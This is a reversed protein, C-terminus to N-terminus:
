HCMLKALKQQVQAARREGHGILIDMMRILREILMGHQPTLLAESLAREVIDVTMSANSSARWFNKDDKRSESVDLLWEFAPEPVLSFGAKNLFVLLVGYYAPSDAFTKVWRDIHPMMRELSPWPAEFLPMRHPSFLAICVSAGYRMGVSNDNRSGAARSHEFMLNSLMMWQELTEQDVLESQSFRYKAFGYLIKDLLDAERGMCVTSIPKIILEEVQSTTLQRSFLGCWDMFQSQWEYAPGSGGYGRRDGWPPTCDMLTWAMLEHFMKLVSEQRLDDGLLYEIPQFFLSRAVIDFCFTQDALRFQGCEPDPPTISPDLVYKEPISPLRSYTTARFDALVEQWLKKMWLNRKQFRESDNNWYIYDRPIVSMKIALVLVQWCLLYDQEWCGSLHKYLSKVVGDLPHCAMAILCEREDQTALNRKALSVLGQIGFPIPHLSLESYKFLQDEESLPMNSADWAIGRAWELKDSSLNEEFMLLTAAVGAIAVQMNSIKFETSRGEKFVDGSDLRRAEEYAKDFSYRDDVGGKQLSETAWMGLGIYENLESHDKHVEVYDDMLEGPPVYYIYVGSKDKLKESQYNEPSAMAQMQCIHGNIEDILKPNSRQEEFEFPLDGTVVKEVREVLLERYRSDEHFLYRPILHRIELQRHPLQNRDAVQKKGHGFGILNSPSNDGVLREIDWRWIYLNTVLPLAADFSKEPYKQAISACAGLVGVCNNNELVLKFLEEVDRGEEVQSEMWFELAMLGSQVAYPGVGNGRFWTYQNAHGWFERAGWPFDIKVPLPTGSRERKYRDRWCGVARASLANLLRLGEATNHQLLSLFPPNLHSANFFHRDESIGLNNRISSSFEDRREEQIMVEILSDVLQEPIGEVLHNANKILFETGSHHKSSSINRVYQAVKSTCENVCAFVIRRLRNQLEEGGHYGELELSKYRMQVPDDAKWSRGIELVGLWDLAWGVVSESLWDPILGYSNPLVMLFRSTEDVLRPPIHPIVKNLWTLFPRWTQLQPYAFLYALEKQTSDEFESDFDPHLWKENPIVEITRLAVLVDEFYQADGELLMEQIRYLSPLAQSSKLPGVLVSRQWRPDLEKEGVLSLLKKWDGITEGKELKWQGLLQVADTLWVPQRNSLLTSPLSNGKINLVQCLTWDELIDHTFEVVGSVKDERLIDDSVLSGLAKSDSADFHTLTSQDVSLKANGLQVLTFQRRRRFDDGHGADDTWMEIMLDVESAPLKRSQNNLANSKLLRSLLYPRRALSQVASDQGLISSLSPYAAVISEIEDDTLLPISVRFPSPGVAEPTLNIRYDLTNARASVVIVWKEGEKSNRVVRIIENVSAWGSADSVRDIADIFMCPSDIRSFEPLLEEFTNELNWYQEAGQFSASFIPRSVDIVIVPSEELKKQAIAKLLSSKGCGPDGTIEIFSSSGIAELVNEQLDNRPLYIGGLTSEINDLVGRSRRTVKDVDPELYRLHALRFDAHLLTVLTARNMSGATSKADDVLDVLARWLDGARGEEETILAQKLETNLITNLASSNGAEFDFYIVEFHNLFVYLDEDSLNRGAAKNVCTRITKEFSQMTQNSLGDTQLRDFFDEACSSSKAWRLVDHGANITGNIKGLGIGVRDYGKVFFSATYTEWCQEMVENFKDNDSFTLSRKVQLSLTAKKQNATVGDVIVDDLANGEYARQLRIKKAKVNRLGHISSNLLVSALYFAGVRSELSPGAGGTSVPSSINTM